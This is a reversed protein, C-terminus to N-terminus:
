ARKRTKQLDSLSVEKICKEKLEFIKDALREADSLNHTIHLTSVKTRERILKLFHYMDERTEDDLASLPEDLCLISPGYALARGLAVRQSEGGSLGKPKRDLLKELGLLSALEKVRENMRNSDWKRIFLSFSLNDRVSMNTFLAGDQPVYGIGREAPKLHTVDRGMLRISGSEIKKLGCIAEWLTTKGAGTKGMLVAYQGAGIAFNIGELFFSGARVSLNKVEIM